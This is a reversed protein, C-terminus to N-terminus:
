NPKAVAAFQIYRTDDFIGGTLFNLMAWKWPLPTPNIGDCAICDFQCKSFLTPIELKTFFRLHTLDLVGVKTYTFRGHLFIDGLVPFYRINPLSIVVVGGPALWNRARKLVAWPDQLHELVDLFTIVDYRQPPLWDAAHELDIEFVAELRTRAVIAAAAHMEVGHVVLDRSNKLGDGFNGHWCGVDLLSKANMPIFRHIESRSLDGYHMAPLFQNMDAM